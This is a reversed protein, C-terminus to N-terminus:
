GVIAPGADPLNKFDQELIFDTGTWLATTSALRESNGQNSYEVSVEEIVDQLYVRTIDRIGPPVLYAALPFPTEPQHFFWDAVVYWDKASMADPFESRFDGSFWLEGTDKHRLVRYKDGVNGPVGAQKIVVEYGRRSADQMAQISRATRIVPLKEENPQRIGAARLVVINKAAATAFICVNPTRDLAERMDSDTWEDICKITTECTNCLRDTPSGPFESLDTVRLAMPCHVTKLFEGDDAYLAGSRPEFIM